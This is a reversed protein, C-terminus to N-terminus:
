NAYDATPEYNFEELDVVIESIATDRYRSGPYVSKIELRVWRSIVPAPLHITQQRITRELDVTHEGAETTIRVTHPSNNKLLSDKSKCYGSHIFIRSFKMPYDFAVSVWEGIGNHAAGEVWATAPNHDVLNGPGYDVGGTNALRSSVEACIRGFQGPPACHRVGSAHQESAFAFAGIIVLTAAIIPVLMASPPRVAATGCEGCFSGEEALESHCRECEM